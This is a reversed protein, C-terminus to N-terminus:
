LSSPLIVSTGFSMNFWLLTVNIYFNIVPATCVIKLHGSKLVTCHEALSRNGARIAAMQWPGMERSNYTEIFTLGMCSCHENSSSFCVLSILNSEVQTVQTFLDVRWTLSRKNSRKFGEQDFVHCSTCYWGGKLLWVIKPPKRRM